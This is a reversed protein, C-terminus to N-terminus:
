NRTLAVAPPVNGCLRGTFELLIPLEFGAFQTKWGMIRAAVAAPSAPKGDRRGVLGLIKGIV